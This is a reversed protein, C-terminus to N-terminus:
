DPGRVRVVPGGVAFDVDELGDVFAVGAVLHGEMGGVVAIHFDFALFGCL